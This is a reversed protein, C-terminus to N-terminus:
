KVEEIDEIEFNQSIDSIIETDGDLFKEEAEAKNKATVLCTEYGDYSYNIKYKKM